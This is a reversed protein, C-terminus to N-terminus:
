GLMVQSGSLKLIGNAQVTVATGKIQVAGSSEISVQGNAKVTVIAGEVSLQGKSKVAVTAAEASMQGTAELKVDRTAKGSVTGDATITLDGTGERGKKSTITITGDTAQIAISKPSTIGLSGNVQSLQNPKAKGNWVSGLVYPRRADGGEFGVVVEDGVLPTMLVGRDAGAQPATVRAWWGETDDGLAPYKVRVRGLKDPDDNNTVIGVVLGSGFNEPVAPSALDVISRPSRGTISFHTQYGSASRYVHTTSSLAYTGGYRSGVGEIKVRSGARLRSDGWCTGEAEVFANGARAAISKALATAEAETTVPANAVTITGTPLDGVVKSRTTGPASSLAPQGSATGVIAKAAEPDWGRVTVGGAQQVGTIRPRFAILQEGWILTTPSGAQGGAAKFHLKRDEIVVERDLRRALRWLFEWDTESSQQVFKQTGGGDEITGAQLGAGGALKRVIDGATMQQFTATKRGRQLQHGRDYGRAAIIVGHPTFEPEVALVQAKLTSVLSRQDLGALLVEVEAGITFPHSDIHTLSPDSIRILFASPLMLSHEVRVEVVADQLAASIPAGAVRIECGAVKGNTSM